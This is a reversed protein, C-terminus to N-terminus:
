TKLAVLRVLRSFEGCRSKLTDYAMLGIEGAEEFWGGTYESSGYREFLPDRPLEALELLDIRSGNTFEIHHDNGSKYKFLVDKKVGHHKAVKYFTLLTSDRLRKLEERGIFWRTAPFALSMWMLWEAGTWSKAGGAAGGYGIEKTIADTLAQLCQYQKEHRGNESDTIFDFIKDEFLQLGAIVHPPYKYKKLDAYDIRVM